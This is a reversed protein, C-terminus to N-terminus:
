NVNTSNNNKLIERGSNKVEKSFHKKSKGSAIVEIAKGFKEEKNYAKALLHRAKKQVDAKFSKQLLETCIDITRQTKEIQLYVEALDLNIQRSIEPKETQTIAKAFYTEADKFNEMRVSYKAIKFFAKSKLERDSIYDLNSGLLECANKLLGSDALVDSKMFLLKITNEKSFDKEEAKKVAALAQIAEGKETQIQVVYQLSDLFEEDPLRGSIVKKFCKYAQEKKDLTYYCKGALYFAQYFRRDTDSAKEFYREIWKVASKIDNTRYCCDAAGFASETVDDINESFYYIKRFLPYAKEYEACRTQEEALQLAACLNFESDPFQEILHQLDQKAGKIDNLNTKIISSKMLAVPAACSRSYTNFVLKYEALAENPMQLENYLTGLWFHEKATLLKDTTTLLQRQWLKVAQKSLNEVHENLKTYQKPNYICFTDKSDESSDKKYATLGVSGAATAIIESVTSDTKYLTVTRNKISPFDCNKNWEIEVRCTRGIKALFDNINVSGASVQWLQVSSKEPSASKEVDPLLERGAILGTGEKLIDEIENIEKGDFIDVFSIGRWIEDPIYKNNQSLSIIKRTLHEAVAFQCQKELKESWTEQSKILNCLSLIKYLYRRASLYDGKRESIISLGANATIRIAPSSSQLLQKFATQPSIVDEQLNHQIQSSKIVAACLATKLNIYDDLLKESNDESRNESLIRYVIYSNVYDGSKYLNEASKLSVPFDFDEICSTYKNNQQKSKQVTEQPINNEKINETRVSQSTPQNESHFIIYFVLCFSCIGAIILILSKQLITALRYKKEIDGKKQSTEARKESEELSKFFDEDGSFIDQGTLEEKVPESFIDQNEPNNKKEESM